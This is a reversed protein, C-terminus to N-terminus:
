DKRLNIMPPICALLPTDKYIQWLVRYALGAVQFDYGDGKTPVYFFEGYPLSYPYITWGHALLIRAAQENTIDKPDLLEDKMM